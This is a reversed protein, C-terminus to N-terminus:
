RRSKEPQRVPPKEFVDDRPPEILADDVDIEVNADNPETPPDVIPAPPDSPDKRPVPSKYNEPM